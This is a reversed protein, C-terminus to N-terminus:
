TTPSMTSAPRGPCSRSATTRPIAACSACSTASGTAVRFGLVETFFKVAAKHDPSHLVIHSIKVRFAKGASSRRAEARARRRQLDRVAPRRALLLPIRLRRRALDLARPEISSRPLRRGDGERAACRRRRAHRGGARDRRHPQRRVPAAAGRSPEDHGQARLWALGDTARCRAGPGMEGPLLRARRRLGDVGYGVYRIETVRSM